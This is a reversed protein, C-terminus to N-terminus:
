PYLYTKLWSQFLGREMTLGEKVKKEVEVIRRVMEWYTATMMANVTRASEHRVQQILEKMGSLMKKYGNTTLDKTM